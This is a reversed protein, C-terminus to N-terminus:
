RYYQQHPLGSYLGLKYDFHYGRQFMCCDQCHEKQQLHDDLNEGLCFGLLWSGDRLCMRGVAVVDEGFLAEVGEEDVM